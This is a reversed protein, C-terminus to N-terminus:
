AKLVRGDFLTGAEGAEYGPLSEIEKQFTRGRLRELLAQLRPHEWQTRPVVLDFSVVLEPLFELGFIAAVARPGVGVDARNEVLAQACSWHSTFEQGYGPVAAAALGLQALQGDLWHRSGSGAERNALRFRHSALDAVGRFKKGVSRRVMWGQEWRTFRLIRWKGSPDFSRVQRLNEGEDTGGYHLGAVQVQGAALRQLARASGCNVWFCRGPLGHGKEADTQILALAPDCGAVALNHKLEATDRYVHARAPRDATALVGDAESFGGGFSAITDASHAVWHRGIKALHLRAGANLGTPTLQVPLGKAKNKKQAAGFLEEVSSDLAEALRLAVQVNPQARGAEVLSLFQRSVGCRRALKGQLLNL